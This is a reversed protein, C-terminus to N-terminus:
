TLNMGPRRRLYQRMSSAVDLASLAPRLARGVRRVGFSVPKSVSSRANSFLYRASELLVGDHHDDAWHRRRYSSQKDTIRGMALEVSSFDDDECWSTANESDAEDNVVCVTDAADKDAEDLDEAWSSSPDLIKRQILDDLYDVGFNIAGRRKSAFRNGAAPM